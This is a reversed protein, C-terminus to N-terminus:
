KEKKRLIFCELLEREKKDLGIFFVSVSSILISSIFIVFLRISSKDIIYLLSIPIWLSVIVVNVFPLIVKQFYESISFQIISKLVVISVIQTVFMSVFTMILAWEPAFGMKLVIYSLPISLLICFSGCMQYTKMKGTAHVIGSIAANLNGIFSTLVIIVVFTNAHKPVNDGLWIHLISDMEILVPLAIIYLFFCSLKSVTYTLRIVREINGSAFSQVVQPRVPVTINQVLSQLGGNVQIAVGRAANVIPGYFLNLVLNIGQEKMMNAFAGFLNWGSFTLMSRFLDKYMSFKMELEHFHRHSFIVYIFLELFHVSVIVGGYLILRDSPVLNITLILILKLVVDFISVVSYFDMREHAMVAATYPVQLVVIVFTAISFQFIWEAAFMRNEPVVMKAHLYWLGISEAFVIIIIALVFQLLLAMNFVRNAGVEGNKGLEFNYFRQIGNSMSTNLFAFMSVFGCVVNYVGYDEVGLVALVVRTTYLTIGLVFVMRVSMFISNRAIRRNAELDSM